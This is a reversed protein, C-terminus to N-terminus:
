TGYYVNPKIPKFCFSVAISRFEERCKKCLDAELTPRTKSLGILMSESEYSCEVPKIDTEKDCHDCTTVVKRM